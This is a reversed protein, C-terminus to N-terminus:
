PAAGQGDIFQRIEAAVEPLHALHPAHPQPIGASRRGIWVGGCRRSSRRLSSATMRRRSSTSEVPPLKPVLDYWGVETVFQRFQEIGWGFQRLERRMSELVPADAVMAALDMHAILPVSFAFREDLCTLALTLAGGLSLGMVGVPRPDEAQLWSLLTRADLLNQRLSEFSRVLDATWYLEGGFRSGRPTRRGHYPPQLQVVEVDLFRAMSLLMAFEELYTEPQLYGHLDLLRPRRRAGVPRIRRAYVTHTEAYEAVYRERFRPEIPEHLSPFRRGRQGCRPPALANHNSGRAGGAPRPLSRRPPTAPLRGSRCAHQADGAFRQLIQSLAGTVDDPHPLDSPKLPSWPGPPSAARGSM